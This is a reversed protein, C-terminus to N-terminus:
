KWGLLSVVHLTLFRPRRLLLALVLLSGVAPEPVLTLVEQPSLARNYLVVEDIAGAFPFNNVGPVNGIGIGPNSGSLPGFPRIATFDQAVMIGNFYLRMDGTSGDLTGTVQVWTNFPLPASLFKTNNAADTIQLGMLGGGDLSLAYPDLGPRDDGRMFATYSYGSANVWMGISLSSTLQFDLSDPVMVKQNAAGGLFAQGSIGATFGMGNLLVGHHSDASDNANGDARWWAVLGSSPPAAHAARSGSFFTSVVLAVVLLSRGPGCVFSLSSSSNLKKM